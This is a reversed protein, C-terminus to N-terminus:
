EGSSKKIKTYLAITSAEPETDLESELARRCREYAKLAQNRHGKEHCLTMVRRCVDEQTPDIDMAMTYFSIAKKTAGREEYMSGLRQLIGIYNLKARNRKEEAWPAYLDQPLFDGKYLAIAQEYLSEAAKSEGKEEESRGKTVLSSFTEIDIECREENLSVLNDHLHVYSSGFTRDMQPELSKRLRHLTVKFNKEATDPAHEPWLEEILVDRPVKKSGQSVIAKLLNRASNREWESDTIVHEGRSVRFNGLTEIRLMPVRSLHIAKRIELTKDRLSVNPHKALKELEHEAHSSLSTTLLYAAYDTIEKINLKLALICAKVFDERSMWIMHYYGHMKAIKFGERLYTIAQETNERYWELLSLAIHIHSTLLYSVVENKVVRLAEHLENHADRYKELNICILGMIVNILILHSLSQAKDSSFIKRSEELYDKAKLYEKKCYCNMALHMLASAKLFFNNLTSVLNLLQSGTNEAAEYEGLHPSSMLDYLLIVPYCYLLGYKEADIRASQILTKAERLDGKNILLSSLNISYLTNIEHSECKRLLNKIDKNLREAKEFDGLYSLAILSNILAFVQLPINGLSQSIFYSNQSSWFGKRPNRGRLTYGIGTQLYLIAKEYIYHDSPISRLVEDSQELLSSIPTIDCGGFISAEIIFALSLLQGSIDKRKKFMILAQELRLINARTETFRKTMCMYLLLWPNGQVITDPLAQLWRSLDGQRGANLLDIGIREIVAAAPNFAEAKMYFGVAQELDGRQESLHGAKKLLTRKEKSSFKSKFHSKLFDRFLQHYRYLRGNGEDDVVTVFLNRRASEELIDGANEIGLLENVFSPAVSDLISSAVFFEQIPGPQSRLIEEGFYDFVERKYRAPINESIFQEISVQPTRDLAESLLIMGGIWGETVQHIRKTQSATVPVGRIKQLFARTEERSFALEDNTLISVEQKIKLGQLDLPPEERSLLLIQIHTPAQDILTSIFGYSPANPPLRDLADLLLLNPGEISAFLANVWERYLPIELRPGMRITPYSLLLSFDDAAHVHQVAQVIAYFLNVPDADQRDLTVWAAPIKSRKVYSAAMTSKGQAAQGLILIVRKDTNHELREMLRPRDLINHLRPPTIKSINLVPKM